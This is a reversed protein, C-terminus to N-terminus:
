LFFTISAKGYTPVVPAKEMMFSIIIFFCIRGEANFSQINETERVFCGSLSIIFCAASRRCLDVKSGDIIRLIPARVYVNQELFGLQASYVPM